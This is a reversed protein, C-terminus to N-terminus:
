RRQSRQPTSVGFPANSPLRIRSIRSSVTFIFLQFLCVTDETLVFFFYQTGGSTTTMVKDHARTVKGTTAFSGKTFLNISAIPIDVPVPKGGATPAAQPTRVEPAASPAPSHPAVSAPRRKTNNIDNETDM